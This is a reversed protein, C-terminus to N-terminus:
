SKCPLQRGEHDVQNSNPLLLEGVPVFSFGCDAAQKLILPLSQASFDAGSHLLLISGCSLRSSVREAIQEASLGKWDLTDLNWQIPICGCSHISDIVLDNYSGSPPRFLIPKQGCVTEIATQSSRIEELIEQRSLRDMDRHSYSHSGIEHGADAIAKASLPYKEAWEGLLFFTARTNYERLTQLIQPIDQDDWACNIGIAAKKEQTQVSYIPLSRGCSSSFAEKSDTRYLLFCGVAVAAALCLFFFFIRFISNSKLVIIKM